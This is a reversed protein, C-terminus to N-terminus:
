GNDEVELVTITRTLTVTSYKFNSVTYEAYYIGAVSTDINSVTIADFSLDERYYYTIKVKNAINKGFSVAKVGLETYSEANEITINYQNNSYTLMEFTDNKTFHNITFYAGLTGILFFLSALIMPLKKSRKKNSKKIDVSVVTPTSPKQAIINAKKTTTNTTKKTTTKKTTSTSKKATSSPKITKKIESLLKSTQSKNSNQNTAM